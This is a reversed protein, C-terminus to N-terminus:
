QRKQYQKEKSIVQMVTNTLSISRPGVERCGTEPVLKTYSHKFVLGHDHLRIKMLRNEWRTLFNNFLM